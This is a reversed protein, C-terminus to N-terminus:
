AAKKRSTKKRPKSSEAALGKNGSATQAQTPEIVNGFERGGITEPAQKQPSAGLQRVDPWKRRNTM